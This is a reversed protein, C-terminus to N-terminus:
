SLSDIESVHVSFQRRGSPPPGARRAARRILTPRCPNSTLLGCFLIAEKRQGEGRSAISERFHGRGRERSTALAIHSLSAAPSAHLDRLPHPDTAEEGVNTATTQFM